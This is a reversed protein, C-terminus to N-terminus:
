DTPEDREPIRNPVAEICSRRRCTTVVTVTPGRDWELRLGEPMAATV